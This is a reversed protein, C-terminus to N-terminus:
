EGNVENLIVKKHVSYEEERLFVVTRGGCSSCLMKVGINGGATAEGESTPLWKCASTNKNRCYLKMEKETMLHNYNM